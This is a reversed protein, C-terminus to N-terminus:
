KSSNIISNYIPNNEKLSFANPDPVKTVISTVYHPQQSIAALEAIDSTLNNDRIYEYTTTSDSSNTLFNPPIIDDAESYEHALPHTDEDIDEYEHIEERNSAQPAVSQVYEKKSNTDLEMYQSDDLIITSPSRTKLYESSQLILQKKQPSNRKSDIREQNVYESNNNQMTKPDLSEYVVQSTANQNETGPITNLYESPPARGLSPNTDLYGSPPARGLSPNTDLYGSPPARGLSPNTDLYGSPAATEANPNTDLYESPPARGLSPNTDLYGSPAATKANPNTDLYESPPARGLSPNTDLYGSPAATEANPNTDLYESPPARGLSPNTDLYGSPAATEVNPNTDLYESPPARGLSPNTDLYGSPAATEANPNTDLYESPPARGLSPNTDLYGSPPARGLSPNTDLYGSPAATKANPNTDLYESPPARGLSPNTDLYGSPAATKANPNTDLYESPPVRGLSPNTDLYGSPAKPGAITLNNTNQQNNPKNSYPVEKQSTHPNTHVEAETAKKKSSMRTIMREEVMAEPEYIDNSLMYESGSKSTRNSLSGDVQLEGGNFQKLQIGEVTERTASKNNHIEGHMDQALSYETPRETESPKTQVPPHIPISNDAKEYGNMVSKNEQTRKINERLNEYNLTGRKGNIADRVLVQVQTTVLYAMVEEDIEEYDAIVSNDRSDSRVEQDPDGYVYLGPEKLLEQLKNNLEEFSIRDDPKDTWCRNLLQYLISSCNIPQELRGGSVLFEIVQQPKVNGYPRKASTLIEWVTIGYSWVDSKHSYQKYFISELPMWRIPIKGGSSIYQDEGVDLIRSMGFDSIKVLENSEVLCNRSALDRHVLRRSELYNMGSAIQQMYTLKINPTLCDGQKKLYDLLSGGQVLENVVMLQRAMCLCYFRVLYRHRMKALLVAEKILEQMDEIPADQNLEKIAVTVPEGDVPQWVGSYVIGFAGKGLVNRKEIRTLDAIVLQTMDAEFLSEQSGALGRSHQTLQSGITNMEIGDFSQRTDKPLLGYTPNEQEENIKLSKSHRLYICVSAFFIGIICIIICIGAVFVGVIQFRFKDLTEVLSNTNNPTCTIGSEDLEFNIPCESVCTGNQLRAFLCSTCDELSRCLRCLPPCPICEPNMDEREYFGEYCEETCTANNTDWRTLFNPDNCATCRHMGQADCTGCSIHCPACNSNSDRYKGDSCEAVCIGSDNVNKCSVCDSPSSRSCGICEQNCEKCEMQAAYESDADCTEVCVGNSSFYKCTVCNELGNGNCTECLSHCPRCVEISSISTNLAPIVETVPQTREFYSIGPCLDGSICGIQKEESDLVLRNCLNCGGISLTINPGTCGMVCLPDCPICINEENVYHNIPCFEVCETNVKLNVCADCTFGTADTCSSLCQSSCPSCTRTAPNSFVRPIGSCNRVCTREHIFNRCRVCHAPDPGWCRFEPQCEYDCTCNPYDSAASPTVETEPRFVTLNALYCLNANAFFTIKGNSVSQLGSLDIYEFKNAVVLLSTTSSLLQTGQITQLNRLFDFVMINDPSNLISLYGTIETISELYKLENATIEAFSAINIIVPGNVRTCNEFQHANTLALSNSATGNIDTGNCERPCASGCFECKKINNEDIVPTFEEPCRLLCQGEFQIYNGICEEVCFKDLTFKGDPNIESKFTIINLVFRPPCSEVCIDSNDKGICGYCQDPGPGYCGGLCQEDCCLGQTVDYCGSEVSCSTCGLGSFSSTLVQCSSENWCVGGLCQDCLSEILSVNCDSALDVIVSEDYNVGIEVETRFVIENNRFVQRWNVGYLNCASTPDLLEKTIDQGSVNAKEVILGVTHAGIYTLQPFLIQSITCNIFFISYKHTGFIPSFSSRGGVIRLRPLILEPTKVNFFLIYDTVEELQDLFSFNSSQFEPSSSELRITLSGLIHRCGCFVEEFVALPKLNEIPAVICVEKVPCLLVSNLLCEAVCIGSDNVNKCSVCDSPSSRSCGICEQNCEKCEMQAAYESDADCTEVCVGNSSFYKCSLCNELGNGNCTECLSHCPRCVEISSTSTNLAPIVETVPQIREFYSIGPCLDGSICGIQKEESDLVLRNCLNCGGISLTINPGTCGMVCLPDCPICINEENVYHNIPCFEVCETNVKLNVCADCTFGTADTCSSLCQSSCPSCTRTAPNSFVRPIGSCNRVCTREHIFNRCRVCHAPDPGWCRFEPQCEYDCTCNPNDPYGSAASPTVETEPRFVTLNALYCLNANAFFTIKGNSVSQLGSLDIYEFKNAVVLLSTTSSLLQTGQITQLNRLFDFVMINDPSNLISLYGTIETISELYKLENATIEAFSAINIIVPGNVRTCNEFQHANTLALSNSATGNIDTGNCERPCASGCFECKKINNEDIVPTFEEPCRLLCQGEFQIYNGICEEVCFKDLTFKGDPNIESKFTIINLVFRPPCSEVCIDSNDKGICGYCQDPGPGYCGGLCQEDCCLGQTVDYCGSEVSCSTCGLGSFSSTLVQCSSENWCVGGLCQDCLSEILSVNCDSALDVIVSEDYNVGIEVETRFVIENNRFVQRWNVGYLNCASTPDLLEKTIDQGSVNAKEVILGVTHAGIYTLQPFLIQSITCNIFFISYKHTGFIPSFSSRGGVIRLRPLILEPTKVNFFLIYDTVEELQDLFSFNSSQFEPSSSELRITLSGLIHRCGCFVEEFVALPKLNEIPAVICVEKVPCLLVSNLLITTLLATLYIKTLVMRFIIKVM